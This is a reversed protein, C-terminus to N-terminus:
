FNNKDHKRQQIATWSMLGLLSCIAVGTMWAIAASLAAIM